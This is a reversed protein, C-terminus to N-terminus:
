FDVQVSVFLFGTTHSTFLETLVEIAAKAETSEDYKVDFKQSSFVQTPIPKKEPKPRRKSVVPAFPPFESILQGRYLTLAKRLADEFNEGQATLFQNLSVLPDNLGNSELARHLQYFLFACFLLHPFTFLRVRFLFLAPM